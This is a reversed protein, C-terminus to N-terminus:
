EYIVLFIGEDLQIHNIYTRTSFFNNITTETASIGESLIKDLVKFVKVKQPITPITPEIVAILFEDASIVEKLTVNQLAANIVAEQSALLSDDSRFDLPKIVFLM